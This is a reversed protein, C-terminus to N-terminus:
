SSYSRWRQRNALRASNMSQYLPRMCPPRHQSIASVGAIAMCRLSRGSHMMPNNQLHTSHQSLILSIIRTSLLRNSAWARKLREGAKDVKIEAYYRSTTKPSEHRLQSSVDNLLTPDMDVTQSAMTPRLDKIRFEVGTREELNRKIRNLNSASYFGTKNGYGVAPFLAHHEKVGKHALHEERAQLYSELFPILDERVISIWQPSAWSGEGKPYRVYFRGRKLDLDELHAMRIEKPRCGTSLGLAVIGLGISGEWDDYDKLANLLMDTSEESLARIPKRSEKPFRVGEAKMQEIIFNGFFKLLGNLLQNYKKQTSPDLRKSKYLGQLAQIDGRDIRRPDTSGVRGAKKLDQLL